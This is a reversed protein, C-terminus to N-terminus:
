CIPPAWNKADEQARLWAKIGNQMGKQAREPQKAADLVWNSFLNNVHHQFAQDVARLSMRLIHERNEESVCPPKNESSARELLAIAILTIAITVFAVIAGIMRESLKM